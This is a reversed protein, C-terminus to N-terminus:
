SGSPNQSGTHSAQSSVPVTTQMCMPDPELSTSDLGPAGMATMRVM